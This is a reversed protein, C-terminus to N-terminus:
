CAFASSDDKSGDNDNSYFSRISKEGYDGSGESNMKTVVRESYHFNQDSSSHPQRSHARTKPAGGEGSSARRSSFQNGQYPRVHERPGMEVGHHKLSQQRSEYAQKLALLVMQDVSGNQSGYDEDSFTELSNNNTNVGRQSQGEFGDM